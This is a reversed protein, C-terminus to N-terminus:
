RATLGAKTELAAHQARRYVVTGLEMKLCADSGLLKMLSRLIREADDFRNQSSYFHILKLPLEMEDPYAALWDAYVADREHLSTREAAEMRILLITRESQLVAPLAKASKLAEECKGANIQRSLEAIESVHTVFDLNVGKLRTAEEGLFGAAVNIWTRRLTDSLFENLGVIFIDSVRFEGPEPEILTFLAYNLGGKRSTSRFLLGARGKLTLPRLFRFKTNCYDRTVGSGAWARKSSDFFIDRVTEDGDFCYHQTARTLIADQDVVAEAAPLDGSLLAHELNQVFIRLPGTKDSLHQEIKGQTLEPVEPAAKAGSFVGALVALGTAFRVLRCLFGHPDTTRSAYPM